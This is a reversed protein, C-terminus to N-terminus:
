GYIFTTRKWSILAAALYCLAQFSDHSKEYSVLLKRYRNFWSHTREVVWRRPRGRHTKAAAEQKRSRVHPRYRRSELARRAPEGVYAADACLHQVRHKPRAVVVADLTAELM